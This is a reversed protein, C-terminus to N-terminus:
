SLCQWAFVQSSRVDCTRIGTSRWSTTRIAVRASIGNLRAALTQTPISSTTAECLVGHSRVRPTRVPALCPFVTKAFRTLTLRSQCQAEIVGVGSNATPFGEFTPSVSVFDEAFSTQSGDFDRVFLFTQTLICSCMIIRTGVLAIREKHIFIM